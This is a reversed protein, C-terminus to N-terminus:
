GIPMLIAILARRNDQEKGLHSLSRTIQHKDNGMHQLPNKVFADTEKWSVNRLSAKQPWDPPLPNWLQALHRSHGLHLLIAQM